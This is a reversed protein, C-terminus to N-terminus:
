VQVKHDAEEFKSALFTQTEQLKREKKRFDNRLKQEKGLALNKAKSSLTQEYENLKEKLAKITEEQNKVESFEKNCKELTDQLKHNETETDQM